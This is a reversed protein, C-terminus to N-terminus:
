MYQSKSRPEIDESYHAQGRNNYHMEALKVVADSAGIISHFGIAHDKVTIDGHTHRVPGSVNEVIGTYLAARGSSNITGFSAQVEAVKDTIGMCLKKLAEASEKQTKLAELFEKSVSSKEKLANGITNEIVIMQENVSQFMKNVQAELHTIEM